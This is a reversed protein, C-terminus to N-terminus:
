AGADAAAAIADRNLMAKTVLDVLEPPAHAPPPPLPRAPQPQEGAAAGGTGSGPAGAPGAAGGGADAAGATPAVGAGVGAGAGEAAAENAAAQVEGRTTRLPPKGDDIPRKASRSGGPGRMTDGSPTAQGARPEGEPAGGRGPRFVMVAVVVVIVTVALKVMWGAGQGRAEAVHTGGGRHAEAGGDDHPGAGGKSRRTPWKPM